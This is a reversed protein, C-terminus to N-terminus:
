KACIVQSLPGKTKIGDVDFIAVVIYCYNKQKQDKPINFIEKDLFFNDQVPINNISKKPIILARVLRYINYGLFKIKSNSEKFDISKWSLFNGSETKKVQLNKISGLDFKNIKYREKEKTFDFINKQKKGCSSLLFLIILFYNLKNM